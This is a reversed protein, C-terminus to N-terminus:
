KDESNSPALSDLWMQYDSQRILKETYETVSEVVESLSMEEIGYLCPGIGRQVAHANLRCLAKATIIADKTIQRCLDEHDIGVMKYSTFGTVSELNFQERLAIKGLLRSASRVFHKVLNSEVCAMSKMNNENIKKM